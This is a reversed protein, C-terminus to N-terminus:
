PRGGLFQRLFVVWGRCCCALRPGGRRGRAFGCVSCTVTDRIADYIMAGGADAVDLALSEDDM